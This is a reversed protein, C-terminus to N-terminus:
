EELLGKKRLMAEIKPDRGRFQRFLEGPEVTNGAGYICQRARAATAADFCSGAETFATFADADLVEAWQYVYYGSAYSSSGFLHSFHSPRHRM